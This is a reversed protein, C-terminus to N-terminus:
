QLSCHLSLRGRSVCCWGFGRFFFFEFCACWTLKEEGWLYRTQCKVCYKICQHVDLDENNAQNPGLLTNSAIFLLRSLPRPALPAPTISPQKRQSRTFAPTHVIAAAAVTAGFSMVPSFHCCKSTQTSLFWGTKKKMNGTVVHADFLISGVLVM